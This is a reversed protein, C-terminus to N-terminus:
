WSAPHSERELDTRLHELEEVYKGVTAYMYKKLLFNIVWATIACLPIAVAWLKWSLIKDTFGAHPNAVYAGYFFGAVYGVPILWTVLKIVHSIYSRLIQIQRRLAIVVSAEHIHRMKRWLWYYPICSGLTAVVIIITSFVPMLHYQWVAWGLVACLVLGAAAEIIINRRIKALASESKQRALAVVEARLGAYYRDADAESEQWIAKLNLEEMANSM